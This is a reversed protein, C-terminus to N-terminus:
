GRGELRAVVRDACAGTLGKRLLMTPWSYPPAVGFEADMLAVWRDVDAETFTSPDCPPPALKIPDAFLSSNCTRSGQRYTM